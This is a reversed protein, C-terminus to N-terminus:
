VQDNTSATGAGAPAAEVDDTPLACVGDVCLPADPAGVMEFPGSM